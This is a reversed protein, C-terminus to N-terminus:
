TTILYDALRELCSEWGPGFGSELAADRDLISALRTHITLLTKGQQDEFTVTVVSRPPLGAGCGAGEQLTGEYVIREPEVIERFMGCCPHVDGKTGHLLLSFKGGVKLDVQCDKSSYGAPGWWIALHKPDTWAKFVLARPADFLRTIVIEKDAVTVM